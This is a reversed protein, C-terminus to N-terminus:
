CQIILNIHNTESIGGGETGLLFFESEIIM